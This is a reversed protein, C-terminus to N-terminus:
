GNGPSIGKASWTANRCEDDRGAEGTARGPAAPTPTPNTRQTPDFYIWTSFDACPIKVWKSFYPAFFSGM